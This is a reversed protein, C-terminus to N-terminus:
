SEEPLFSLVQFHGTQIWFTDDKRSNDEKTLLWSVRFISNHNLSSTLSYIIWWFFNVFTCVLYITATFPFHHPKHAFILQVSIIKDVNLHAEKLDWQVLVTWVSYSRLLAWLYMDKNHHFFWNRSQPQQATEKSFFCIYCHSTNM